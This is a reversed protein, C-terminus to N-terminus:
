VQNLEYSEVDPNNLGWFDILFERTVTESDGTYSPTLISPNGKEKIKAEWTVQMAKSSKPSTYNQQMSTGAIAAQVPMMATSMRFQTTTRFMTSM